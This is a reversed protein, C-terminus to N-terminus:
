QVEQSQIDQEKGKVQIKNVFVDIRKRGNRSCCRSGFADSGIIKFVGCRYGLLFLFGNRVLMGKQFLKNYWM